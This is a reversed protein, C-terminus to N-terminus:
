GGYNLFNKLREVGWPWISDNMESHSVRYMFILLFWVSWNEEIEMVGPVHFNVFILLKLKWSGPYMFIWLFWVSRNEEIKMVGPVHFDVFILLKLKRWNEHGRYMFILLFWFSRNEGIKKVLALWFMFHSFSLCLDPTKKCFHFFPFCFYKRKTDYSAQEGPNSFKTADRYHRRSYIVTPMRQQRYTKIM